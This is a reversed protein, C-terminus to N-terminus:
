KKSLGHTATHLISEWIKEPIPMVGAEKREHATIASREGPIRVTSGSAKVTAIISAAKEPFDDVLDEPRIVIFTHGWSKALKKSEVQGLVAGGSLAGALLEVCLSLGMGKHGGFTAIAGGDLVEAADTTFEGNKGYAVNLPLPEGKAKASLVGFLAIASTAM